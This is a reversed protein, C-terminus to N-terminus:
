NALLHEREYALVPWPPHMQKAVNTIAVSDAAEYLVRSSLVIELPFKIFRFFEESLYAIGGSVGLDDETFAVVFETQTTEQSGLSLCQGAKSRKTEGFKETKGIKVNFVPAVVLRITDSGQKIGVSLKNPLPRPTGRLTMELFIAATHDMAM